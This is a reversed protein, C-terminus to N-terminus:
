NPNKDVPKISGHTSVFLLALYGCNSYSDPQVISKSNTVKRGPIILSDSESGFSDCVYIVGTKPNTYAGIFHGTTVGPTEQNEHAKFLVANKPEDNKKALEIYDKLDLVKFDPIGLKNALYRVQKFSLPPSNINQKGHLYLDKLAQYIDKNSM